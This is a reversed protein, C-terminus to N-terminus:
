AMKEVAAKGMKKLQHAREKDVLSKVLSRVEEVVNDSLTLVSRDPTRYFKNIEDALQYGGIPETASPAAFNVDGYIKFLNVLMKHLSMAEKHLFAQELKQLMGVCNTINREKGAAEAKKAKSVLQLFTDPVQPKSFIRQVRKDIDEQYKLTALNEEIEQPNYGFLILQVGQYKADKLYQRLKELRQLYKGSQGLLVNVRVNLEEQLANKVLHAIRTQLKDPLFNLSTKFDSFTFKSDGAMFATIIQYLSTAANRCKSKKPIKNLRLLLGELHREASLETWLAENIHSAVLLRNLDKRLNAEGYPGLIRNLIQVLQAPKEDFEVVIKKALAIVKLEPYRKLLSLRYLPYRTMVRQLDNYLFCSEITKRFSSEEERLPGEIMALLYSELQKNLKSSNTIHSLRKLMHNFKTIGYNLMDLITAPETLMKEHIVLADKLKTLSAREEKSLKESKLAGQIVRLTERPSVQYVKQLLNRHERRLSISPVPRALIAYYGVKDGQYPRLPVYLEQVERVWRIRNGLHVIVWLGAIKIEPWFFRRAKLCQYAKLIRPAMWGYASRLQQVMWLVAIKMQPLFYHHRQFYQGVQALLPQPREEKSPEATKEQPPEPQPTAPTIWTEWTGSVGPKEDAETSVSKVQGPVDAFSHASIWTDWPQVPIDRADTEELIELDETIQSVGDVEEVEVSEMGKAESQSVMAEDHGDPQAPSEGARCLETFVTGVQAPSVEPLPVKEGQTPLAVKSLEKRLREHLAPIEKQLPYLRLGVFRLLEAPMEMKPDLHYVLRIFQEESGANMFASAGDGCMQELIHLVLRGQEPYQTLYTYFGVFNKIEPLQEM